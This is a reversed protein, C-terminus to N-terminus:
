CVFVGLLGSVEQYLPQEKLPVLEGDENWYGFHASEKPVVMDDEEFQIM